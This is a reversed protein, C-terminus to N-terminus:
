LFLSFLNVNVSIVNRLDQGLREYIHNEENYKQYKFMLNFFQGGIKSKTVIYLKSENNKHKFSNM